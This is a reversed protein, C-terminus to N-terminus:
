REISRHEISTLFGALDVCSGSGGLTRSDKADVTESTWLTALRLSQVRQPKSPSAIPVGSLYRKAWAPSKVLGARRKCNQVDSKAPIAKLSKVM